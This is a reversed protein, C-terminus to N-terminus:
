INTQDPPASSRREAAVQPTDPRTEVRGNVSFCTMSLSGYAYGDILEHPRAGIQAALGAFYVFPLFHDPTPVSADYDAHEALRAIDAPASTIQEIAADNFRRNWDFPEDPRGWDIRRLNHVVNGSGIVAIDHDLLPALRRGLDLHYDLDHVANISLQLVPVDAAPRVHAAGVM